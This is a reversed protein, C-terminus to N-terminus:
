CLNNDNSGCCAHMVMIQDFGCGGLDPSDKSVIEVKRVISQVHQTGGQVFMPLSSCVV